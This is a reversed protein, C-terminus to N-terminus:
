ASKFTVKLIVFCGSNNENFNEGISDSCCKDINRSTYICNTKVKEVAKNNHVPILFYMDKTHIVNM